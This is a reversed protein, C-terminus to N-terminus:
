STTAETNGKIRQLHEVLDNYLQAHTDVHLIEAHMALFYAFDAPLDHDITALPGVFDYSHTNNLPQVCESEIIM